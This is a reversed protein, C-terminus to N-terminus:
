GRRAVKAQARIAYEVSSDRDAGLVEYASALEREEQQRELNTLLERILANLTLGRAKAVRKAARLTQGPLRVTLQHSEVDKQATPMQSCYSFDFNSEVRPTRFSHCVSQGAPLLMSFHRRM